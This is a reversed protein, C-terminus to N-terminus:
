HMELSRKYAADVASEVADEFKAADLAKVGEITTGGPSCVSIKLEEATKISEMLMKASGKVTQCALIKAQDETLGAAVGGKALADMFMFVFAPGSGSLACGADFLKEELPLLRGAKKMVDVFDDSERMTLDDSTYLVMGEEVSVPLNPMIRVIPYNSGAMQRITKMELGAAMSVLVFRDRRAALVSKIESLMDAMVQPKVGLFVMDCKEALEKIDIVDAGIEESLAKAKEEDKDSLFIQADTGESVARALAGGMNGCGIFGIKRFM